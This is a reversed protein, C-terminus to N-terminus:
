FGKRLAMISDPTTPLNYCGLSHSFGKWTVGFPEGGTWYQLGSQPGFVSELLGVERLLSEVGNELVIRMGIKSGFRLSSHQQAAERNEVLFSFTSHITRHSVEGSDCLQKANCSSATEECKDGAWETEGHSVQRLASQILHKDIEGM